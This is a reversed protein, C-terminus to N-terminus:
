AVMVFSAIFFILSVAISFHEPFIAATILALPLFSNLVAGTPHLKWIAADLFTHELVISELPGLHIGWLNVFQFCLLNEDILGNLLLLLILRPIGFYCVIPYADRLTSGFRSGPLKWGGLRGLIGNLTLVGSM